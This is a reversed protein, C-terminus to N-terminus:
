TWSKGIRKRCDKKRLGCVIRNVYARVVDMKAPKKKGGVEQVDDNDLKDKMDEAEDDDLKMMMNFRKQLDDLESMAAEAEQTKGNEILSRIANKKDEIQRLLAKTKKGM